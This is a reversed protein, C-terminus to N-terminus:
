SAGDEDSRVRRLLAEGGTYEVLEEKLLDRPKETLRFARAAHDEEDPKLSDQELPNM